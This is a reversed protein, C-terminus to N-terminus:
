FPVWLLVLDTPYWAVLGCWYLRIAAHVKTNYGFDRPFKRM